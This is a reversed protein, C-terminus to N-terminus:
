LSLRGVNVHLLTNKTTRHNAVTQLYYWVKLFEKKNCYNRCIILEFDLITDKYSGTEFIIWSFLKSSLSLRQQHLLWRILALKWRNMKFLCHIIRLNPQQQNTISRSFLDSITTTKIKRCTTAIYMYMYITVCVCM